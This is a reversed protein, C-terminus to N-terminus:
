RDTPRPLSAQTSRVSQTRVANGHEEAKWARIEKTRMRSEERRDSSRTRALERGRECPQSPIAKTSEQGGAQYPPEVTEKTGHVPLRKRVEGSVGHTVREAATGVASQLQEEASGAPANGAEEQSAPVAAERSEAALKEKAQLWVRHMATKPARAVNGREKPRIVEPKTKIEKLRIGGQNQVQIEGPPGRATETGM